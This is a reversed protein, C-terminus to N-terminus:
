EYSLNSKRDDRYLYKNNLVERRNYRDLEPSLVGLAVAKRIVVNAQEKSIKFLSMIQTRTWRERVRSIVEVRGYVVPRIIKCM